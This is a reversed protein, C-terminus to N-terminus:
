KKAEKKGSGKSPEPTRNPNVHYTNCIAVFAENIRRISSASDCLAFFEKLAKRRILRRHYTLCEQEKKVKKAEPELLPVTREMEKYLPAYVDCCWLYNKALEPANEVKSDLPLSKFAQNMKDYAFVFALYRTKVGEEEKEIRDLRKVIRVGEFGAEALAKTLRRKPCGKKEFVPLDYGGPKPLLVIADEAYTIGVIYTRRKSKSM